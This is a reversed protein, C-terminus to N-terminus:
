VTPRPHSVTKEDAPQPSPTWGRRARLPVGAARLKNAITTPHVGFRDAVTALSDGSRYRAAADQIAEPDLKTGTRRRAVNQRELTALVTTRHLRFKSALESVSHGALYDDVLQAREVESLRTQRQVAHTARPPRAQRSRIRPMQEVMRGFNYPPNSLRGILDV